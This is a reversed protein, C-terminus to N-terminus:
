QQILKIIKNYVQETVQDPNNKGTDILMVPVGVSKWKEACRLCRVQKKIITDKVVGGSREKLRRQLEASGLYLFVVLQARAEFIANTLNMGFTDLYSGECVIVDSVQLGERVIAALPATANLTDVGGYATKKDYKGAFACRKDVCRTLKNDTTIIGGFKAMLGRALTSKGSCNTGIIFVCTKM